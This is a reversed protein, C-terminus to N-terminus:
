ISPNHLPDSQFSYTEFSFTM